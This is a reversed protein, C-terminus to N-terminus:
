ATLPELTSLDVGGEKEKRARRKGQEVPGTDSLWPISQDCGSESRRRSQPVVEVAPSRLEDRPDPRPLYDLVTRM